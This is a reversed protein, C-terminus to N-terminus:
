KHQSLTGFNYFQGKVILKGKITLTDNNFFENNFIIPFDPNTSEMYCTGNNIFYGESFESQGISTFSGINLINGKVVLKSNTGSQFWSSYNYIPGNVKSVGSLGVTGYNTAGNINVPFAFEGLVSFGGYNVLNPLDAAYANAPHGQIGISGFNTVSGTLQGASISGENVLFGANLPSDDALFINGQNHLTSASLGSTWFNRGPRLRIESQASVFLSDCGIRTLFGTLNSHLILTDFGVGIFRFAYGGLRYERELDLPDCKIPANAKTIGGFDAIAGFIYLGSNIEIYCTPTSVFKLEPIEEAPFTGGLTIWGNAIWRVSDKLECFGQITLSNDIIAENTIASKEFIITDGIDIWYSPRDNNIWNASDGYYAPQKTPKFVYTKAVSANTLLLLFLALLLVWSRRIKHKMFPTHKPLRMKVEMSQISLDIM